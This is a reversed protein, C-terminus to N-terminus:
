PISSSRRMSLCKNPGERSTIGHGHTRLGPPGLKRELPLASFCRAMPRRKRPQRAAQEGEGERKQLKEAFGQPLTAAPDAPKKARRGPHRKEVFDEPVLVKNETNKKETM